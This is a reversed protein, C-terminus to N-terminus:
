PKPTPTNKEDPLPTQARTRLTVVDNWLQRWDDREGEPLKALAEAGRVGNFDTDQLWHALMLAVAPKAMEPNKDLLKGWATLDARLWDLAQQRLRAREKVDLTDADRGQGCGALAAACAAGYRFQQTLSEAAKPEDTFAELSLRAAAAYLRKISCINALELGESSNAPKTEGKLVAPLKADLEVLREAERVVKAKPDTGGPNRSVLEYGRKIEVVSDMFRGQRRLVLGLNWHAQSYDHQFDVAKRFAREAETLMVQDRLVNGLNFYALAYDPQIQIAKRWADAAEPLKNQGVLTVGLFNYAEAFDPKVEIARHFAGEAEAQKGQDNLANGLNYYGLAFDPQLQIAKRFADVAEPLKKQKALVTGLGNYPEAFDPQLQIAKRYAEVAEPVKKQEELINGLNNHAKAFDPQLQIATRFAAEAEPLKKEQQLIYGLNNYALAFDPKLQIATRFAAEAEALRKQDSLVNALGIYALAFDPKLQIARRHAVEAEALKKQRFLVNGLNYYPDAYDPKLEIAKRWADMAGALKKQEKLIIGVNNYVVPTRPRLALAVRCFGLAEDLTAPENHLCEALAFNIWFDAPNRDHAQRLLRTAVVKSKARYLAVSLLHLYAPPETLTAEKDALRELAARDKLLAPNRLQERWPDDDALRAVRRIPEGSDPQVTDNAFSWDDLAAVLQTRIASARVRQAAEEPSLTVLSLEYSAFAVAYALATGQYDLGSEGWVACQLRADELRVVMDANKRRQEVRERLPPPGATQLRASARELVKLSEPWRDETEFVDAVRLDEGIEKTLVAQQYQERSWALGGLILVSLILVGIGTVLAKHRVCWRRLRKSLSPRRARIARDELFNRLDDAMEQATAYRDAPNRELAKLVIIELDQPIARNVRRPRRPEELALQRLLEQRDRGTFVPQLTLLEYLTAGLSYVDTRQDVVDRRALAQEPSMYRLTGVLDGTMTLRTDSQMQALGFDTVWLRANADVLLNAPKIDRHVIGMQHAHDLAEAAQVGLRAVMHFYELPKTLRATSLGAFPPIEANGDPSELAPATEPDAAKDSEPARQQAIVSALDRGEIFQMAYYHVGRESGVFYVPVINTHHLGAAARAENQFRQLQRADMTSALPLVKLAVRRGLSLQEAEYVVGMGGRGVERVIRFDGLIEATQEQPAAGAQKLGGAASLGILRWSALVKRLVDAAQPHRAAYEEIDPNEGQKQRERFEDVVQAVLSELSVQQQVGADSM